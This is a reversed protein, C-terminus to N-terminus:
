DSPRTEGGAITSLGEFLRPDISDRFGRVSGDAFAVNTVGGPHIGGFQRGPGLYPQETPDLGRVTAPGGALWAGAVRASEAIVMTYATGDKIDVLTTRRDYGFVGARPHGAPLWPSDLGLGGIGIYPTTALGGPGVTSSDPCNLVGIRTYAVEDNGVGYWPEDEDLSDYLEQNELQPLIAAYWSLRHGPPLDPNPWTGKPFARRVPRM